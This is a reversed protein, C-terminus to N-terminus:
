GAKKFNFLHKLFEADNEYEACFAGILVKVTIDSGGEKSVIKTVKGELYMELVEARELYAAKFYYKRNAYFTVTTSNAKELRRENRRFEDGAVKRGSIIQRVYGYSVKFEKAIAVVDRGDKYAQMIRLKAAQDIKGM